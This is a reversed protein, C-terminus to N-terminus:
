LSVLDSKFTRPDGDYGTTQVMDMTPPQSLLQAHQPDESTGVYFIAHNYGNSKITSLLEYPFRLFEVPHKYNAMGIGEGVSIKDSHDEFVDFKLIIFFYMNQTEQLTEYILDRDMQVSADIEILTRHERSVLVHAVDHNQVTPSQDM